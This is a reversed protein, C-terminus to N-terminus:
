TMSGWRAHNNIWFYSLAKIEELLGCFYCRRGKFLAENRAKWLCWFATLIVVHLAENKHVSPNYFHHLQLLDHVSFAFIPKNLKCWNTIGLWIM